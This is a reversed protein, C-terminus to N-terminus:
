IDENGKPRGKDTKKSIRCLHCWKQTIMSVRIKLDLVTDLEINKM